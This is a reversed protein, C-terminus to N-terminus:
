VVACKGKSVPFKYKLSHPNKQHIGDKKVGCIIIVHIGIHPDPFDCGQSMDTTLWIDKKLATMSLIQQTHWPM